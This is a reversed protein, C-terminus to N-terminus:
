NVPVHKSIFSDGTMNWEKIISERESNYYDNQRMYNKFSINKIGAADNYAKRQENSLDIKGEAMKKQIEFNQKIKIYSTATAGFENIEKKIYELFNKTKDFLIEDNKFSDTKKLKMFGENNFQELIKLSNETATLDYKSIADIFNSEAINIKLFILYLRTHYDFVENSIKMKQSIPNKNETININYKDAFVKQYANLKEVEDKIKENALNRNLTYTEVQEFTKVGKQIESAKEFESNINSDILLLYDLLQNKYEVDGKFGNELDTIKKTVKQCDNLLNLRQQDLFEINRSHAIASTYQWILNTLSETEKGLYSLYDNPKSFNQANLKTIFCLLILYVTKKM